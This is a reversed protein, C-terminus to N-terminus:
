YGGMSSLYSSQSNMNAIMTELTSFQSIYRDQETKLRTKLQNILKDLATLQDYYTNQTLSQAASKSGAKRILIGKTEMSGVTKVYKDM